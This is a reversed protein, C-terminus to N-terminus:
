RSTALYISIFTSVISLITTVVPAFQNFYYLGNNTKATIVTEPSIVDTKKMQKGEKSTIIISERSNRETIFGGALAIYYEWDRDPIYPYRGPRIVSGAVTVFYQRFPIILVDNELVFIEARYSYDYLMPNLNIPIHENNRLIYANQLDSVATFWNRNNRVLSAYTEGKNFQVVLRNSSVLDSAASSESAGMDSLAQQAESSVAGEVFMVAQLQTIVPVTVVDYNEMVYNNAIDKETLFIKDGTIDVSNVLRVIEIRTKDAMPTFGNGYLEILEKINEGDLLQYIGPREIEGSIVVIRKIRNFTIIDGPRIYPDQNLDGLRQAMFLDYVKTQGNSSKISIDRISANQTLNDDVLLSSLRSLGWVPVEGALYVEGNVSVKFIAPQTLVLQVGSLPYNNAVVTEVENKLQMFTKGAGNVIGLNSVRIRYSNDVTIIYSVPNTGAAYTLTYMDGPTVRYDASSRALMINQEMNMNLMNQLTGTVTSNQRNNEGQSFVSSSNQWTGLEQSSSLNQGTNGGQSSASQAFICFGSCVWLSFIILLLRKNKM